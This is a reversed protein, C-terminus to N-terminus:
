LGVLARVEAPARGDARFAAIARANDRKALRKGLEDRILKHHWYTPRRIDLLAQLVAHIQTAEFLDAGRVVETIEQADDDVVVSLHYSTGMGRRALVVDGVGDVLAARSPRHAGPTIPGRETFAPVDGLQDLAAAMNLRIADDPGAESMPRGRCTGPYVLGDPGTALVGEQPASLAARIDGRTCRCPYCVPALRALAAAYAPMRDSQRMVPQPWTLGLWALDDYIQDEWASTSRERDIDEIRLLMEGGMARARHFATLASFAHGIHL